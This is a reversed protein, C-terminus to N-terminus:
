EKVVKPVNAKRVRPKKKVVPVAEVVSEKAEVEEIEAEVAAHTACVIEKKVRPKTEMTKTHTTVDRRLSHCSMKIGQLSKRARAASAKRGGELSKIENEANDLM